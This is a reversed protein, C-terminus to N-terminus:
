VGNVILYSKQRNHSILNLMHSSVRVNVGKHMQLNNVHITARTRITKHSETSISTHM